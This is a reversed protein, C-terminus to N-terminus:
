CYKAIATRIMEAAERAIPLDSETLEALPLRVSGCDPGGNIRLIEKIVGYMNGHTSCMKYIIRCCENQIELAKALEGAKVCRYLEAARRAIDTNFNGFGVICDAKQPSQHMGLYDWIVQLPQLFDM